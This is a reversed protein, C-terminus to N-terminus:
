SAESRLVEHALVSVVDLPQIPKVLVRATPGVMKIEPALTGSTQIVYPIRRETLARVIPSLGNDALDADIVAAAVNESDLITLAETVTAAPGAARGHLSEVAAVLDLALYINDHLILVPKDTLM